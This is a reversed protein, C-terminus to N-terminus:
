KKAKEQYLISLERIDDLMNIKPNRIFKGLVEAITRIEWKERGRQM